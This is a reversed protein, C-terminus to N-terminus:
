AATKKRRVERTGITVRGPTRVEAYSMVRKRIIGAALMRTGSATAEAVVADKV